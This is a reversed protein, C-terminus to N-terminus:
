DWFILLVLLAFGFFFALIMSLTTLSLFFPASEIWASAFSFFAFLLSLALAIRLAKKFTKVRKKKM